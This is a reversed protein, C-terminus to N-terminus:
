PLYLLFLYRRKRPARGTLALALHLFAGFHLMQFVSGFTFLQAFHRVNRTSHAFAAIFAWASLYIAMYLFARTIATDVNRRYILYALLLSFFSTLTASAVMIAM